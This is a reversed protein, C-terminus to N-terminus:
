SIQGLELGFALHPIAVDIMSTSTRNLLEKRQAHTKEERVLQLMLGKCLCGQVDVTPVRLGIIRAVGQM